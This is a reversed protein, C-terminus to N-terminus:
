FLLLCLIACCSLFLWIRHLSKQVEKEQRRMRPSFYYPSSHGLQMGGSEQQNRFMLPLVAIAIGSLGRSAEGLSPYQHRQVHYHHHHRHRYVGEEEEASDTNTHARLQHPRPPVNDSTRHAQQGRGYLPVLSNLTLSAKCVPCNQMSSSELQLWKYICQWCYLHGCLTVVPDVSIDLCINCDFSGSASSDPEPTTETDTTSKKLPENGTTGEVEM